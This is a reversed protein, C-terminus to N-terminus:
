KPRKLAPKRALGPASLSKAPDLKYIKLCLNKLKEFVNALWLSDSQVYFNHNVGLNKIKCDKCVRKTHGLDADTIDEMNVSQLIKKKLYHQKMSNKRIIWNNMLPFVKKCCYFLSITIM